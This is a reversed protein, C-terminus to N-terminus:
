RVFEFRFGLDSEGFPAAVLLFELLRLILIVVAISGRGAVDFPTSSRYGNESGVEGKLSVGRLPRLFGVFRVIRVGPKLWSVKARVIGSIGGVGLELGESCVNWEDGDKCENAVGVM